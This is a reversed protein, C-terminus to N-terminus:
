RRERSGAPGALLPALNIAAAMAEYGARNPHLKEGPGGNTSRPAGRTM